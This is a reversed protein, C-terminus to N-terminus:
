MLRLQKYVPIDTRIEVYRVAFKRCNQRLNNRKDAFYQQYARKFNDPSSDFQIRQEAYEAAYEGSIPAIEELVDFINICCVKNRKALATIQKFKEFDVQSFDSLIFIIGHGKQHIQLTKLADSIDGKISHKLVKKSAQAISNFVSILNQRNNQPKFYHSSEGDFILAGFRDKNKLAYWGLLAAIKAASVTKLENKTGFVMTASMDVLVTIERDKEEHYVKTFPESKRATVRWDMDRIDDGFAYARVEELEMGRGKLASKIEGSLTSTELNNKIQLYNLFKQQQLLDETSVSLGRTESNRSNSNKRKFFM